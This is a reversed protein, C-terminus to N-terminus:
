PVPRKPMRSRPDASCPLCLKFVYVQEQHRGDGKVLDHDQLVALHADIDGGVHTIGKLIAYPFTRGIVSAEQLVTKTERDIREAIVGQVTPPMDMEEMSRTTIWGHQDHILSESEILSSIVEELFFPNGEVKQEIFRKLRKPITDTQLLSGAM